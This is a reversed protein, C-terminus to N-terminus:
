RLDAPLAAVLAVGPAGALTPTTPHRPVAQVPRRLATPAGIARDLKMVTLLLGGFFWFYIDTTVDFVVGGPLEALFFLFASTAIARHFGTRLKLVQRLAFFILYVRTWYILLFGVPGLELMVRGSEVETILGNLWSYPAIGQTVAAATQHTTGIGYGFLGADPLIDFPARFPAVFRSAADESGIARGEFASLAQGGAYSLLVALVGLGIVLRGFIAGGQRERVVALYWYFPFLLALTFVPGRSGTMLMGLLTMGLALFVKLHGKFRWKTASLIALILIATAFLYSAYGSIYSFTATVRVFASTGFTTVYGGEAEGGRAYTNLASSSPSLFQALALLGVPISLLAYRRLFRALEVDSDFAAPMVYLLPVYFFYAKWGLIGVLLNPLAPNFIEFLGFVAGAVLALRLAPMAPPRYRVRERSRWFGAYAGLLVVDKAFYVLDQAGPVLWKRIAGELVVLVLAVQLAQKWRLMAWVGVAFGFFILISRADM